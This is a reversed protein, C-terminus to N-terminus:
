IIQCGLKKLIKEIQRRRNPEVYRDRNNTDNPNSLRWLCQAYSSPLNVNKLDLHGCESDWVIKIPQGSERDLKFMALIAADKELQYFVGQEHWLYESTPLRLLDPNRITSRSPERWRDSQEGWQPVYHLLGAYDPNVFPDEVDYGRLMPTLPLSPAPLHQLSQEITTLIIGRESFKQQIVEFSLDPFVLKNTETVPNGLAQHALPLYARDGIFLAEEYLVTPHAMCFRNGGGTYIEGKAALGRLSSELEQILKDHPYDPSLSSELLSLIQRKTLTLPKSQTIPSRHNSLITVIKVAIDQNVSNVILKGTPPKDKTKVTSRSINGEILGGAIKWDRDKCASKLISRVDGALLDSDIEIYFETKLIDDKQISVQGDVKALKIRRELEAIIIKRQGKLIQHMYRM